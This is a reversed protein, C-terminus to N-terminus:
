KNQYTDIAKNALKDARANKERPIHMLSPNGFLKLLESAKQHLGALTENKVRYKGLLQRVVLESDMHVHLRCPQYKRCLELGSILAEYEAVNNTATGLYRFSEDVVAGDEGCV